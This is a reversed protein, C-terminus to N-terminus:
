EEVILQGLESRFAFFASRLSTEADTGYNLLLAMTTNQRPFWFLDATYALDRGRHGYAYNDEGQDLFDKFIGVGLLKGNEVRPDFQLMQALMEDSLLAKEILLAEIFTQLDFVTSYMGGYGSATNYNSLNVITGNNYLDYYGQATRSPLKEYDLYYTDNLNLPQLIRRRIEEEHPNGTVEEIIMSVILTNTNSYAAQTGPVFEAPKHYVFEAIEELSRKKTPHNLIDLYFNSDDIVDYIGTSHNLLQRLTVAQANEIKSTLWSPLWTTIKEDLSLKGEEVLQLATVAVFMKTISAAKSLHCVSMNVDNAIDAKGAAGAWTGNEDRILLVLGPLGQKIYKDLLQQYAAAKPHEASGAPESSCSQTEGIFEETCAILLLCCLSVPFFMYIKSM